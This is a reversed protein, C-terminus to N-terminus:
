YDISFAFVECGHAWHWDIQYTPPLIQFSQDADDFFALMPFAKELTSVIWAMDVCLVLFEESELLTTDFILILKPSILNVIIREQFAEDKVKLEIYYDNPVWFSLFILNKM